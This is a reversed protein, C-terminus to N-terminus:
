AISFTLLYNYNKPKNSVLESQLFATQERNTLNSCVLLEAVEFVKPDAFPGCSGIYGALDFDDLPEVSIPTGARENPYHEVFPRSTREIDDDDEDDENTEGISHTDGSQGGLQGNANTPPNPASAPPMDTSYTWPGWQM